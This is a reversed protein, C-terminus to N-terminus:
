EDTPEGDRYVTVTSDPFAARVDAMEQALSLPADTQQGLYDLIGATIQPMHELGPRSAITRAHNDAWMTLIRLEHKTLTVTVTDDADAPIGSRDGCGPCGALHQDPKIQTVTRCRLCLLRM